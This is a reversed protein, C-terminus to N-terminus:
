KKEFGIWTRSHTQPGIHLSLINDTESLVETTQGIVKQDATKFVLNVNSTSGAEERAIVTVIGSRTQNSIFTEYLYEKKEDVTIETFSLPINYSVRKPGKPGIYDKGTDDWMIIDDLFLDAGILNGFTISDPRSWCYTQDHVNIGLKRVYIKNDVSIMIHASESNDWVIDLEIFHYKGDTVSPQNTNIKTYKGQWTNDECLYGAYFRGTKDIGIMGGQNEKKSFISIFESNETLQRNTKMWFSLRFRRQECHELIDRFQRTIRNKFKESTMGTGAAGDHIIFCKNLINRDGFYWDLSGETTWRQFGVECSELFLLAM